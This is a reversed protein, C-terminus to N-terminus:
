ADACVGEEDLFSVHEIPEAVSGDIVTANQILLEHSM